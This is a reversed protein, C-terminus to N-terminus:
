TKSKSLRIAGATPEIVYEDVLEGVQRTFARVRHEPIATSPAPTDDTPANAVLRAEVAITDRTITYTLDVRCDRRTPMMMEAAEDMVLRLDDIEPLAFGRRLALHAAAIRAVRGYAPEAPVVLRVQEGENVTDAYHGRQGDPNGASELPSSM